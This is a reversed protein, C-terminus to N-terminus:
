PLPGYAYLGPAEGKSMTFMVFRQGGRALALDIGPQVVIARDEALVAGDLPIFRLTM